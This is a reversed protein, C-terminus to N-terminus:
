IDKVYAHMNKWYFSSWFISGSTPLTKKPRPLCRSVRKIQLASSTVRCNSFETLSFWEDNESTKKKYTSIWGCSNISV